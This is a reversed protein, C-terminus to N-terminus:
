DDYNILFGDKDLLGNCDFSPLLRKGKDRILKLIEDARNNDKMQFLYSGFRDYNVEIFDSVDVSLKIILGVGSFDNISPRRTNPLNWAYKIDLESLSLFFEIKKMVSLSFSEKESVYIALLVSDLSKDNEPPFEIFITSLYTVGFLEVFFSPSASVREEKWYVRGAFQYVDVKQQSYLKAFRARLYRASSRVGNLLNKIQLEADPGNMLEWMEKMQKIWPTLETTSLQFEEPLLGLLRELEKKSRARAMILMLAQTIGFGELGVEYAFQKWQEALYKM